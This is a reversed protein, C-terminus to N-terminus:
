AGTMAKISAHQEGLAGGEPLPFGIIMEAGEDVLHVETCGFPSPGINFHGAACQFAQIGLVDKKALEQIKKPM